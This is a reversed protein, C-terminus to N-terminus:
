RRASMGIVWCSKSRVSIMATKWCIPPLPIAFAIVPQRNPFGRTLGPRRLPRNCLLSRFVTDASKEPREIATTAPPLSSGDGHGSGGPMLISGSSRMPCHWGAWVGKSIKRTNSRLPESTGCCGIWGVYADETKPSLHRARFAQRVQDLLTPKAPPPSSPTVVAPTWSRARQHFPHQTVRTATPTGM